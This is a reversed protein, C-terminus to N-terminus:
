MDSFSQKKTMVKTKRHQEASQLLDDREADDKTIRGCYDQILKISREAVDNVVDNVLTNKQGVRTYFRKLADIISRYNHYIGPTPLSKVRLAM